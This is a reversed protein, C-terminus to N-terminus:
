RLMSIIRAELKKVAKGAGILKVTLSHFPNDVSLIYSATKEKELQWLGESYLQSTMLSRSFQM